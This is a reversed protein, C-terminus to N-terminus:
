KMTIHSLVLKRLSKMGGFKMVEVQIEELYLGLKVLKKLTDRYSLLKM